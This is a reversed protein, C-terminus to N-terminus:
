PVTDHGGFEFNERLLRLVLRVDFIKEVLGEADSAAGLGGIAQALTLQGHRAQREDRPFRTAADDAGDAEPRQSDAYLSDIGQQESRERDGGVALSAADAQGEHLGAKPARRRLAVAQDDEDAVFRVVGPGAERPHRGAAEDQRSGDIGGTKKKDLQDPACEVTDLAEYQRRM